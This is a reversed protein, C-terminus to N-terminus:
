APVIEVNACEPDAIFEAQKAQAEEYSMSGTQWKRGDPTVYTVRYMSNDKM